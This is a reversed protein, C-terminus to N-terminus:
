CPIIFFFYIKRWQSRSRSRQDLTVLKLLTQAMAILLRKAFVADLDTCGNPQIKNVSMCVCLCVFLCVCVCMCICLCVTIFTYGRWSEMSTYYHNWNTMRVNRRFIEDNEYRWLCIFFLPDMLDSSKTHFYLSVLNIIYAVFLYLSSPLCIVTKQCYVNTDTPVLTILSHALQIYIRLFSVLYSDLDLSALVQM